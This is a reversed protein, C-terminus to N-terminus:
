ATQRQQELGLARLATELGKAGQPVGEKALLLGAAVEAIVPHYADQIDPTQAPTVLSFPTPMADFVITLTTTDVPRRYLGLWIRGWRWYERVPGQKALWARDRAGLARLSVHRLEQLEGTLNRVPADATVDGLLVRHITRLRNGITRGSSDTLTRLDIFPIDQPTTITTRFRLLAPYVLCLLRQAPDLGSRVIEDQPYFATQEGLKLLTLQVLDTLTM